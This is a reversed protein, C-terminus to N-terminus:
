RFHSGVFCRNELGTDVLPDGVQAYNIQRVCHGGPKTQRGHGNERHTREHGNGGSRIHDCLM